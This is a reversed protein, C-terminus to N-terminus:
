PIADATRARKRALRLPEDVYVTAIYVVALIILVMSIGIMPAAEIPDTKMLLKWTGTVWMIGFGHLIYIGYSLRGALAFIWALSKGPEVRSAAILFAPFLAFVCTLDYIAWGPEVPALLALIVLAVLLSPAGIGFPIILSDLNRCIIVGLTFSFLVRVVGGMATSAGWGLDLTGYKFGLGALAIASGAVIIWLVRDSQRFMWAAYLINIAVELSLSWAAPDFPFLYNLDHYASFHAFFQPIFLASLVAVMLVDPAPATGPVNLAAKVMVYTLGGVLGMLYLPYLRLLRARCFSRFNMAGSILKNEYSRAIVLGSMLFFLDVALYSKGFFPNLPLFQGLHYLMVCLAAAGRAADLTLLHNGAAPRAASVTVPM